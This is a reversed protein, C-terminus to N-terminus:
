PTEEWLLVKEDGNQEDYLLNAKGDLISYYDHEFVDPAETRKVFQENLIVYRNSVRFLEDVASRITGEPIHVLCHSTFVVDFFSDPFPLNQAFAVSLRAGPVVLSAREVMNSSIDVGSLMKDPYEERVAMLIRGPGCGVELINEFEVKELAKLILKPSNTIESWTTDDMQRARKEWYEEPDYGYAMRRLNLLRMRRDLADKIWRM